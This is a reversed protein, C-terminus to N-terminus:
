TMQRLYDLLVDYDIMYRITSLFYDGLRRTAAQTGSDEAPQVQTAELKKQLDASKAREAVLEEHLTSSTEWLVKLAKNTELDLRM